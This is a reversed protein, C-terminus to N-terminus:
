RPRSDPGSVNMVSLVGRNPRTAELVQGSVIRALEIPSTPEFILRPPARHSPTLLVDGPPMKSPEPTEIAESEQAGWKNERAVLQFSEGKPMPLKRSPEPQDAYDAM